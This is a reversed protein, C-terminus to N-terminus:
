NNLTFIIGIITFLISPILIIFWGANVFKEMKLYILLMQVMLIITVMLVNAM